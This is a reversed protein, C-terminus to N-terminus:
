RRTAPKATPTQFPRFSQCAIEGANIVVRGPPNGEGPRTFRQCYILTSEEDYAEVRVFRSNKFEVAGETRGEGPSLRQMGRDVTPEEYILVATVMYDTGNDISFIYPDCAGFLMSALLVALGTLRPM